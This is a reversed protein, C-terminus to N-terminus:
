DSTEGAGLGAYKGGWRCGYLGAGWLHRNKTPAPEGSIQAVCGADVYVRGLGVPM